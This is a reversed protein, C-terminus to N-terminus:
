PVPRWYFGQVGLSRHVKQNVISGVSCPSNLMPWTIGHSLVGPLQHRSEGPSQGICMKGQNIKIQINESCYVQVVLTAPSNQARRTGRSFWGRLTVYAGRSCWGVPKVKDCCKCHIAVAQRERPQSKKLCIAHRGDRTGLSHRFCAYTNFRQHCSLGVRRRLRIRVETLIIGWLSASFTPTARIREWSSIM